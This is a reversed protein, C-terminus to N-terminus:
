LFTQLLLASHACGDELLWDKLESSAHFGCKELLKISVTNRKDVIAYLQHMNLTKKCYDMVQKIAAGAYGKRRYQSMIVFGIEARLHRPSFDVVDVVGVGYGDENLIMLRVQKDTYIDCTSNAIYDHLLYKSYPVSTAGVNWVSKDNEIKYLIDLDEPELARLTVKSM